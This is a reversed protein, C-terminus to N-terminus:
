RRKTAPRKRARRRGKAKRTALYVATGTAGVALLILWWPFPAAGIAGALVPASPLLPAARRTVPAAARRPFALRFVPRAEGAATPAEPAPAMPPAAPVPVAPYLENYRTEVREAFEWGEGTTPSINERPRGFWIDERVHQSKYREWIGGSARVANIWKQSRGLYGITAMKLAAMRDAAPVYGYVAALAEDFHEAALRLQTHLDRQDFARRYAVGTVAANTFAGASLGGIGVMGHDSFSFNAGTYIEILSRFWEPNGGMDETWEYWAGLLGVDDALPFGFARQTEM